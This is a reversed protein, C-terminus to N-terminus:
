ESNVLVDGWSQIILCVPQRDWLHLHMPSIRYINSLFLAAGLNLRALVPKFVQQERFTLWLPLWRFSINLQLYGCWSLGRDAFDSAFGVDNWQFRQLLSDICFRSVLVCIAKAFNRVLWKLPSRTFYFVQFQLEELSRFDDGRRGSPTSYTLGVQSSL